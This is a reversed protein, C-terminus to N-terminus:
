HRTIRVFRDAPTYYGQDRMAEWRMEANSGFVDFLEPPLPKVIPGAARARGAGVVSLAPPVAALVGAAAVARLLDRRSLGAGSARGALWQNLRTRDYSAEDSLGNTHNTHM